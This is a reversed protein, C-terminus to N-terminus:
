RNKKFVYLLYGFVIVLIVIGIWDAMTALETVITGIASNATTTIGSVGQFKGLMILGLGLVFGISVIKQAGNELDNLSPM